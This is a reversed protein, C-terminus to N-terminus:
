STQAIIANFRHHSQISTAINKREIVAGTIWSAEDSALFLAANAVDSPQGIRGLPDTRECALPWRACVNFCLQAHLPCVRNVVLYVISDPVM